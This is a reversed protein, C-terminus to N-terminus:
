VAETSTASNNQRGDDDDDDDDITFVDVDEEDVASSQQVSGGPGNSETMEVADEESTALQQSHALQSSVNSPGWTWAVLCMVVFYGLQGFAQWVWAYRWPWPVAGYQKLMLLVVFFFWVATVYTLIKILKDYLSLKLTQRESKLSKRTHSVALFVWMIILLDSLVAPMTWIQDTSKGSVANSVDQIDIILSFTFYVVHLLIIACWVKGPLTSRTVGLGICVVLLFVRSLANKLQSFVIAMLFPTRCTPYCLAPGVENVQMWANYMLLAEGCAILMIFAIGFHLPILQHCYKFMLILFLVLVLSLLGLELGYFPMLGYMRAPTYGYPNRFILNADWNFLLQNFQHKTSYTSSDCIKYFIYHIGTMAVTHTVNINYEGNVPKYWKHTPRNALIETGEGTGQGTGGGGGGGGGGTATINKQFGFTNVYESEICTVDWDPQDTEHFIWVHLIAQAAGKGDKGMARDVIEKSVTDYKSRDIKMSGTAAVIPQVLSSLGLPSDKKSFVQGETLNVYDHFPRSFTYIAGDATETM